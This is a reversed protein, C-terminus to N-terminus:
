GEEECVVSPSGMTFLQSTYLGERVAEITKQSAGKVGSSGDQIAGEIDTGDEIRYLTSKLSLRGIPRYVLYTRQFYRQSIRYLQCM